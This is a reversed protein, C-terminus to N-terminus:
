LQHVQERHAQFFDVELLQINLFHDSFTLFNDQFTYLDPSNKERFNKKRKEIFYVTKKKKAGFNCFKASDILAQDLFYLFHEQCQNIKDDFLYHLYLIVINHQFQFIQDM